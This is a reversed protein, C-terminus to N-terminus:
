KLYILECCHTQMKIMSISIEWANIHILLILMGFDAIERLAPFRLWVLTNFNQRSKNMRLPTKGLDYGLMYICDFALLM